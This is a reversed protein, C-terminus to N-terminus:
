IFPPQESTCLACGVLQTKNTSISCPWCLHAQHRTAGNNIGFGTASNDSCIRAEQEQIARGFFVATMHLDNTAMAQFHLDPCSALLRTLDTLSTRIHSPISFSLWNNPM